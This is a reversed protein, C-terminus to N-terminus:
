GAKNAYPDEPLSGDDEFLKQGKISNGNMKGSLLSDVTISQDLLTFDTTENLDKKGKKKKTKKKKSDDTKDWKLSGFYSV